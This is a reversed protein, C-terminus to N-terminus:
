AVTTIFGLFYNFLCFVFKRGNKLDFKDSLDFSFYCVTHIEVTTKNPRCYVWNILSVKWSEVTCKPQYQLKLPPDKTRWRTVYVFKLTHDKFLAEENCLIEIDKYKEVSSLLKQAIFKKLHTVTALSSCRIFKRGLELLFFNNWHKLSNKSGFKKISKLNTLYKTGQKSETAERCELQISVQEDFRHFDM